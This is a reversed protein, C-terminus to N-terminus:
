LPAIVTALEFLYVVYMYMHSDTTIDYAINTYHNNCADNLLILNTPNIEWQIHM